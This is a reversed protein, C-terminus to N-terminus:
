KYSSLDSRPYFRRNFLNEVDSFCSDEENVQFYFDYLICSPSSCSIEYTDLAPYKFGSSSLSFAPIYNVRFESGCFPCPLLNFKKM